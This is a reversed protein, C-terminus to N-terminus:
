LGDAASRVPTTDTPRGDLENLFEWRDPKKKSNKM